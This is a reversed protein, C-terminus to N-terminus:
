IRTSRRSLCCADSRSRGAGPHHRRGDRGSDAGVDSRVRVRLRPVAQHRHRLGDAAASRRRGAAAGAHLQRLAWLSSSSSCAGVAGRRVAAARRRRAAARSLGTPPDETPVNLLMVVFLFLVMIAGAYIIIQIAAVFPAGLLVYLGSLAGFSVILLLVSYMPNRQGVVLVSAVVAVPRWCGSCFRTWRRGVLRLDRDVVFATVLLNIVPAPLLWKWGFEMLQDYRYRPLTWRMWIYFFLLAFVKVLFWIWGLRGAAPVARALRRPVPRDRRGLGHGHERVRGPLVARLEDLQVRHPLRRGAGARSGPFDFPARNTEAVGAILFIFFGLPQLFLYWKPIFASGTARRSTSSRARAVAVRGAHHRGRVVPRVLARLQDDAGVLAPRRAALVQQELELRRARHRVRGDLHHRLDRAPRRQRRRGGPPDPRDLLGFFTTDAGFPVVAFAAFAATARCSRRPTSSSAQRGGEAAAGGQVDAQHHRRAAAAPGRPGVLYPGYRQQVFAAVKREMYVLVAASILLTFFM